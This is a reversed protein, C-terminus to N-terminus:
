ILWKFGCGRIHLSFQNIKKIRNWGHLTYFQGLDKIRSNLDIGRNLWEKVTM